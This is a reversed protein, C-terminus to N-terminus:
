YLQTFTEYHDDTYFVLGDSSYVIRKAGRSSAGRTDIDCEYYKRQRAKPLKGELNSFKDGGISCGPAYPELSGGPWGKAQAASKTIFNSPLHGYLHLYLAVDDKSTYEGDEEPQAAGNERTSATADTQGTDTQTQTQTVTPDTSTILSLKEEIADIYSTTQTNTEDHSVSGYVAFAIALVLAGILILLSKRNHKKM